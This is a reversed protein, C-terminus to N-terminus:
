FPPNGAKRRRTGTKARAPPEAAPAPKSSRRRAPKAPEPDPEEEEEEAIEEEEEELDEEAEEEEEAEAFEADLIDNVINEESTGRKVSVGAAKAAKLLAPREMTSLEDYRAAEEESMEDDAAEPEEEGEEEWDEADEGSESLGDTNLTMDVPRSFQTPDLVTGTGGYEQKVKCAVTVLMNEVIKVGAISLVNPPEAKDVMVKQAWFGKRVAAVKDEPVLASLFNNIWRSGQSTVNLNFWFDYGNYQSKKSGAPENIVLLGNLMPDGNKNNKLRLLRMACRYVGKPPQEGDYIPFDELEDEWPSGEVNGWTAKPL